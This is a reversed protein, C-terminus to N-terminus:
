VIFTQTVQEGNKEYGTVTAQEWPHAPDLPQLTGEPYRDRFEAIRTAVDVYDDLSRETFAM